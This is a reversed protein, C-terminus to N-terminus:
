AAVERVDVKGTVVHHILSQKYEELLNIKKEIKRITTDIHSTEGEKFISIVGTIIMAFILIIVLLNKFQNVLIKFPNIKKATTVINPGYSALKEEAKNTTLGEFKSDLIKYLDEVTQSYGDLM